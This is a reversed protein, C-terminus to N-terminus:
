KEGNENVNVDNEGKEEKVLNGNKNDNLINNENGEIQINNKEEKQEKNNIEKGKVIENENIKEENNIKEKQEENIILPNEINQDKNEKKIEKDELNKINEDKNIIEKIKNENIEKEKNNLNKEEDIKKGEKLEQNEKDEGKKEKEKIDQEFNDKKDLDISKLNGGEIIKNKDEKVKNNEEENAKQLNENNQKDNETKKIEENNPNEIMIFENIINEKEKKEEEELKKIEYGKILKKDEDGILEYFAYAQGVTLKFEGIKDRIKNELDSSNAIEKSWLDERFLEDLLEKDEKINVMEFNGALYRSIFRRVAAGLDKITITATDGETSLLKDKIKNQLEESIEKKYVLHLTEVLEKFCFHEILFFINMIKEIKLENLKYETDMFFNKCDESLKLYSPPNQIIKQFDSNNKIVGIETSYFIIMQISSFFDSFDHNKPLKKKIYKFISKKEDENLPKQPYKSTFDLFIQSRGGRFGESWFTVFNLEDENEFLCVGPLIIRGLEEEIADFDFIFSNYNIYNISNDENFIDRKSFTYIVDMLDEYSFKRFKSEILIIQGAKANQVPIKRKINNIYCNLIGDCINANIIKQLFDNQWSIFNQCASAIYMGNGEECNDNLFYIIPDKSSLNKIPMKQHSKYKIAYNKIENWSKTFNIFKKKFEPIIFIDESELSKTKAVDRSIRFSYNEVMYNTFENFAPLYKMKNIEEKNSLIQNLLPYKEKNIMQNLLDNKTKYKTLLFYKFMPYEEEPYTNEKIPIMENVITKINYNDLDLQIKNEEIYETSFTNYNKISEKVELEVNKEFLKREEENTIIKCDNILQSIKSFIMNMFIQISNIGEKALEEKLLNWDTEIIKLIDMNQILCKNMNEESIYDLCNGFFLHCYSIFNLLRYGISSLERVTKKQNKFYESSINNFGLIAKQKYPKIIKNIYEDLLITSVKDENEKWKELQQQKQNLDKFIRYYGERLVMRELTPDWGLMEGCRPCNFVLNPTPFGSPLIYHYYGCSCVYCGCDDEFKKFHQEIDYLSKLHFYEIEDIGPIFSNTISDFGNDKFFLQYLSTNDDGSHNKLTNVCLRFGYLLIEFLPQNIIEKEIIVKPKIIENFNKHDYFLFLLKKLKSNILSPNAGFLSKIFSSFNDYEDKDIVYNKLALNSIIKNISIIVFIDIGNKEILEAMPKTSTNFKNAIIEEFIKLEDLYKNFDAKNDLPMLFYTLMIEDKERYLSQFDKDNYFKIGKSNFNYNKLAEYNNNLYYYFLKFIYIKIVKGLKKNKIKEIVNMINNISGMKSYQEKIFLVVKSLYMKIFVISYLKCIKENGIEENKLSILDLTNIAEKFIDISTDFVIGTENSNKPNKNDKYYKNFLEERVDKKLKPISKFYARVKRELINMIIEDLVINQTDNIKKFNQSKEEKISDLNNAMSEPSSDIVNELIIQIIQSCNLLFENNELIKDLIIDRFEPFSIKIFENLFVFSLAKYFDHKTDNNKGLKDVLFAYFESLNDKLERKWSENNCTTEKGFYKIIKRVNEISIQKNLYFANILRIIEQLSFIEQSRLNMKVELQLANQLIEKNINILDFLQENSEINYIEDKSTIIRLISDILLFFVENVIRTYEPNRLSIEYKIQKEDIIKKIQDFLKLKESLANLRLFIKMIILIEEKYSEIWNINMSIKNLINIEKENIKLYPIIIMNRLNIMYDLLNKCDDIYDMNIINKENKIISKKDRLNNYVFIMYYDNMILNYLENTKDQNEKIIQIIFKENNMLHIIYDNLRKCKNNYKEIEAKIEENEYYNRLNNENLWYKNIINERTYIIIKELIPKIGPLKLGLIIDIKNSRPKEVLRIRDDNLNLNEFYLKETTIRTNNELKEKEEENSLYSSFFQDNEAIFFLINLKTNYLNILYQEIVSIIDIDNKKIINERKFIENIIDENKKFIQKTICDNIQNKLNNNKSIFELLKNIYNKKNIKENMEKNPSIINYKMYSIIKFLSLDIQQDFNICDKFIEKSSKLIIKNIAIKGNGNLNDIFVQDFGSLNSLPEKLMKKNIQIQKKLELDDLAKLEENLIRVIYVIFIFVKKEKYEKQKAEIFYKIYNLFNGEFPMFKILCLKYKDNNFLDELQRELESESKISNIIIQKINEENITENILSIHIDKINNISDLNNSFTYIINKYNKIKRLFNVFNSHEAEGYYEIIKNFYDPYKQRFGNIRINIIIDQPLTLSIKKLIHYILEDKQIGEKELQYILAYIEDQICNILLNDMNYNLGKYVEKNYNKMDNLVSMIKESEDILEQSLLNEFSFIHKEFRNLFPPEEEDIKSDDVNVICKFEDNVYSFINTSSGISLRAYNKGSIITFNKNFLDYMSPYVSELNSLILINPREMYMQIKNLVRSTYEEKNLDQEFYSGIFINYEKKNDSLISSLLFNSTSSKLIVLIYRSDLDNINEKIRNIVDYRKEITCSSYFKKLIEKFIEQSSKNQELQIGSFNREISGQLHKILDNEGIVEQKLDILIKSINKVLYYFDRNGHFDEKSDSNHKEKLYKKYLYYAKGINEFVSKNKEAIIENYSKGITLATEKNDEEDPEPISISIGRNMKAADLVWNSIGVFAIKKNREMQDYELESHIVKLPNNPSNEALGMEDFYIMPIYKSKHELKQYIVKAKRFVEEVGKSTSTMSGQYSYVLLKPLKKFFPNESSEGQMSKILLQVSLSKSCGPKGVIFIPVRTNIAVFLSFLNELLAKNKAIGKDIKINDAIFREERLPLELFDIQKFKEGASKFIENATNALYDRKEKDTIRLYYNVFISLNISYIQISFEDLNLYFDNYEDYIENENQIIEKKNKLYKYFFEYFINFRRIERLSVSSRDSFDRIYEQCFNVLDGALKYLINFRKDEKEKEKKIDREKEVKKTDKEKGIKEAKKANLSLYYIKQISEKIICRIYENEDKPSLNGFDFVFSLLSHPLPNVTYVLNSNKASAIDDLEKKNLKKKEKYAKNIDLGIIKNEKDGKERQRYPNCAAIFIINSPLPKGQCTHKCMLESILGMSKCTNIEDLFVWLKSEEFYLDKKQYDEKIKISDPVVKENIFTIIDKDNTVAHINLIKMKESSGDNKLESLKRILATKGCGTEGMMIVPINARIKMLILIMKICNDATFVYNGAIEELSIKENKSDKEIPNNINLIDKLENLFQKQSYNKYNPLEKIMQKENYNQCNILDLFDKYEKDSKNKNTIIFFSEGLGEQFFFITNKLNDFSIYNHKDNALNNIANNIDERENYQGFLVRHTIEQNRLLNTFAGESLNKSFEIFNEVIITRISQNKLAKSLRLQYANLFFSQNFKKLQTALINIFSIIQYYTPEKMTDNIKNFIFQQCIGDSLIEAKRYIYNKEKTKSIYQYNEFYQPTIKPFFIDRADIIQENLIKLYNGVIQINSNLDTPVILPALKSLNLEKIKFLTLIPFKDLFNIFTNPIEVKIQIDKSLYFIDENEGYFRTILISFLFEMMLSIQATNYLDLHLVCTNDINLEKLRKITDKREIVGGFPFYICKKGLQEIDRQIQTSKGTGSFDSKIIEIDDGEYNISEFLKTKLMLIKTYKKKDLNKFIDSSKDIYLFILCSNIKEDGKPFFKDMLQILLSKQIDNLLEIGAVFFCSNFECLIARYLFSTIEESTKDNSCILINQAIPNNGTLYKYIQYLDKELKEYCYLYIGQYKVNNDFQKIITNQYITKLDINNIKLIGNLYKECNNINDQIIDGEYEKFLDDDDLKYLDNTFYKLFPKINYAGNNLYNHLYNFQPGYIYRILPKKTYAIIQKEKLDILIKNLENMIEKYNQSNTNINYNYRTNDYIEKNQNITISLNIEVFLDLPYGKEYIEELINSINIIETVKEIFKIYDGTKKKSLQAREKLSKLEEKNLFLDKNNQNTDKEQYVCKFSDEKSNSLHFFAGNFISYIKNELAESKNLTLKLTKIQNFNTILNKVFILIDKNQNSIEKLQEIIEKDQKNQLDEIKGLKQFFEICKELDLINNISVFCEENQSALEQLNYCDEITTNFLYKISDPKQKLALLIDIFIQNKEKININIENLKENCIEITKIDNKNRLNESIYKINEGFKTTKPRIVM